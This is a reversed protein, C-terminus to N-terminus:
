SAILCVRRGNEFLDDPPPASVPMGNAVLVARTQPWTWAAMTLIEDADVRRARYWRDDYVTIALRMPTGRHRRLFADLRQDVNPFVDMAVILDPHIDPMEYWDGTYVQLDAPLADHACLEAAVYDHREALAWSLSSFGSGVDLVRHRLGSTLLPGYLEWAVMRRATSERLWRESTLGEARPDGLWARLPDGERRYRSLDRETFWRIM